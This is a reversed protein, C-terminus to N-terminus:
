ATAYVLFSSTKSASLKKLINCNILPESTLRFLFDNRLM